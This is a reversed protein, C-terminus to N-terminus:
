NLPVSSASAGALQQAAQRIETWLENRGAGTKASYPLLRAAPYEEALVRLASNLQNNSLRDSKTAVLLFDRRSANLFHLLQRDSHQPPVNVDVLAVCLALTPRDNLYPEIFKPWEQSIERSIKAYGYGPLDAFILEPRPKGPWRVAFFNISRTRGPTSSTRAIKAGVLSNIVSSKGVNSRGLFAIEPLTPVPFQAADTAAALFQALVRM